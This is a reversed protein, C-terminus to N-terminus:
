WRSSRARAAHRAFPPRLLGFMLVVCLGGALAVLPSIAAWSRAPGRRRAQAIVARGGREDGREAARAAAVAEGASSERGRAGGASLRRVRPDDGRAARDRARRARLDAVDRGRRGTTCRASSCACCTSRRWRWAWRRSRGRDRDLRRVVGFLILFEGAFNASGPMALTALAAILFMAALVPARFAVGGMERIDESEPASPWCCSSSSCAAGGRARPQDDAPGRGASGRRAALLDRAHHLGAAGDLLLRPDPARQDAHVGAGLRLRDVAARARLDADPLGRRRRPLDAARHAPLRLRRGQVRCGLVGVLVPLPMARYGDPMWGHFPFAPM